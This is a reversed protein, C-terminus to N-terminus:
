CRHQFRVLIGNGLSYFLHVFAVVVLHPSVSSREMERNEVTSVYFLNCEISEMRFLTVITIDTNSRPAHAHAHTNTLASVFACRMEHSSISIIIM